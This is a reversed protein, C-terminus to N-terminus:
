RTLRGALADLRRTLAPASQASYGRRGPVYPALRRRDLLGDARAKEEGGRLPSYTITGDGSITYDFILSGSRFRGSVSGTAKSANLTLITVPQILNLLEERVITAMEARNDM